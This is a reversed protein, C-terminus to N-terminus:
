FRTWFASFISGVNRVFILQTLAAILVNMKNTTVFSGTLSFVNVGFSVLWEVAFLRYQTGMLFRQPASWVTASGVAGRSPEQLM